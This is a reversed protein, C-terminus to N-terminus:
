EYSDREEQIQKLLDEIELSMGDILDVKQLSYYCGFDKRSKLRINEQYIWKEAKDKNFYAMHPSTSAGSVDNYNAIILYITDPIM